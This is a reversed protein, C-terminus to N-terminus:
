RLAHRSLGFAQATPLQHEGVSKIPVMGNADTRGDSIMESVALSGCGTGLAIGRSTEFCM